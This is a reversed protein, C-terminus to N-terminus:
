SKPLIVVKGMLHVYMFTSNAVLSLPAKFWLAAVLLRPTGKIRSSTIFIM